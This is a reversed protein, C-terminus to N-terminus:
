FRFRSSPLSANGRNYFYAHTRSKGIRSACAHGHKLVGEVDAFAGSQLQREILAEIEANKFEITV